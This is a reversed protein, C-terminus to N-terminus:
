LLEMRIKMEMLPTYQIRGRLHQRIEKATLDDAQKDPWPWAISVRTFTAINAAIGLM